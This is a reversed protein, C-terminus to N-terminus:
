NIGMQQIINIIIFEAPQVPAMGIEVIMRGDLVDQTTMTEGVGLRVFFADEPKIGQLAGQRWQLTLFNNIMSKIVIWTNIENPDSAYNKLANKISNEVMM